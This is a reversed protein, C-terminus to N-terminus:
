LQIPELTTAELYESVEDLSLTGPERSTANATATAVGQRLALEWNGTRTWGHLLGALLADGCGVTNAILGPHVFVRAKIAVDQGILLAGEPGRTAVVYDVHGGGARCVLNAAEITRELTDTPRDALISLEKANLKALWIDEGRLASLVEEGTDVIVKAGQDNCRHLISRYDGLSVGPPISGSLVILSEERALMGIKSSIRHVDDPQVKFGEERLHTETDMVPDMITINDRTRGRVVLMQTVVRGKGVSDLYDEFIGLEGKGVFGTAICRSGLMGLVRAVNVGKGAPYWGIRKAKAHSGVAFQPALLVRDIAPNLTVTVIRFEAMTVMM